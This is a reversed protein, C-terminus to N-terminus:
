RLITMEQGNKDTCYRADVRAANGDMRHVVKAGTMELGVGDGNDISRGWSNIGCRRARMKKTYIEDGCHSIM